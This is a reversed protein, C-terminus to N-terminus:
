FHEFEDDSASSMVINVGNSSVKNSKTEERKETKRTVPDTKKQRKATSGSDGVKFFSITETLMDAQSALEESSTAMEEAAAANQQTVQNLQQIAGNVQEAGNNMELSAAAIEQVLKSTNEIKPVIENLLEESEEATEVSTETINIIENSAVQSREALKRVEAAVVAFGKGHEGARAAEVAANLALINTQFAIDTIISIKEAIIKMSRVTVHMSSANEGINEAAEQAIKETQQANDTNQMINSSMQEMSSSVEEVSAAQTTAGQSVQQSNGSMEQAAGAINLAGNTVDIVVEKLRDRMDELASALQGVEDKQHVKMKATLDGKAMSNAFAMGLKIPKILGISFVIALIAMLLLAIITFILVGNNTNEAENIMADDTLIHDKSKEGIEELLGGVEHLHQMTEGHFIRMAAEHGCEHNSTDDCHYAKDIAIASQHLRKHPEEIKDFYQKLEPVLAEAKKRGEGYYWKGFGCQHYDTQVSLNDIEEDSVFNSVTSAWKLHDVHRQKLETRLKNGEVVEEANDIIGSIGSLAWYSVIILLIIVSGFGISFKTILKLNKWNM